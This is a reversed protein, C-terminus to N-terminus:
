KLLNIIKKVLEEPTENDFSIIKDAIKEYIPKRKKLLEDLSKKPDHQYPFFAPVDHKLIRPLLVMKDVDLFIVEGLEKLIKQNNENLPTGGGCSLVFRSYKKEQTIKKLTESELQRFYVAGQKKFIERFNLKEKKGMFHTKEIKQDLEIFEIGLKQALLKGVTSKGCAKMGILIINKVM